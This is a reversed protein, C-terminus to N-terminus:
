NHEDNAEKFHFQLMGAFMDFDMIIQPSHRDGRIIVAIEQKEPYLYSAISKKRKCGVFGFGPVEIDGGEHQAGGRDRNFAKIGHAALINVAQRQLSAGRQRNRKGRNKVM